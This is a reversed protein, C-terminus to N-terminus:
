VVPLSEVFVYVLNSPVMPFRTLNSWNEDICTKHLECPKSVKINKIVSSLTETDIIIDPRIQASGSNPRSNSNSGSSASVAGGEGPVGAVVVVAGARAGTLDVGLILIQILQPSLLKWSGHSGGSLRSPVSVLLHRCSYRTGCSTRPRRCLKPPDRPREFLFGM